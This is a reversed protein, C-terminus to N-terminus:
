ATSTFYRETEESPPLEARLLNNAAQLAEYPPAPRLTRRAKAMSYRFLMAFAYIQPDVLPNDAKRM